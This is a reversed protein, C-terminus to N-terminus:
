KTVTAMALNSPMNSKRCITKFQKTQNGKFFFTYLTM